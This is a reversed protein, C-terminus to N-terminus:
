IHKWTKGKVINYIYCNSLGHKDAYFRKMSPTTANKRIELAEEATLKAKNNRDGKFDANRKKAHRDAINQTQTGLWLHRPNVCAPNDCRHCVNLGPAIDGFHITWSLRNALWGRGKVKMRGYGHENLFGQWNWCADGDAKPVYSWFLEISEKPIM